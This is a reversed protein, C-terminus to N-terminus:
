RFEMYNIDATRKYTRRNFTRYFITACTNESEERMRNYSSEGAFVVCLRCDLHGTDAQLEFQYFVKVLENENAVDVEPQVFVPLCRGLWAMEADASSSGYTTSSASKESMEHYAFGADTAAAAVPSAIPTINAADRRSPLNLRARSTPDRVCPLLDHLSWAVNSANTQVNRQSTSIDANKLFFKCKKDSRRFHGMEVSM